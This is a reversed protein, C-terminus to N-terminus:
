KGVQYVYDSGGNFDKLVLEDQEKFISHLVKSRAALITGSCPIIDDSLVLVVTEHVTTDPRVFRSLDGIPSLSILM